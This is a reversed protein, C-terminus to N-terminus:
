KPEEGYHDVFPTLDPAKWGAPKLIKGNEDHHVGGELKKDNAMLVAEIAGAFERTQYVLCGAAVVLVDLTGDLLEKRNARLVAGYHEGAKFKLGANKLLCGLDGLPKAEALTVAGQMVALITEGLEELQMGIYFGVRDANFNAPPTVQGVSNFQHVREVLNPIPLHTSHTM